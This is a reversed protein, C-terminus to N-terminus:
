RTTAQSKSNEPFPQEFTISPAQYRGITAVSEPKPKKPCDVRLHGSEGCYLCLGKTIRRSKEQQSIPGKPALRKQGRPHSASPNTHSSDANAELKKIRRLAERLATALDNYEALTPEDISPSPEPHVDLPTPSPPGHATSTPIRKPPM